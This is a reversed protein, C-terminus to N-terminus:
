IHLTEAMRKALALASVSAENRMVEEGESIAGTSILFRGVKALLGSFRLLTQLDMLQWDVSVFLQRIHPVYANYIGQVSIETFDDRRVVAELAQVISSGLRIKKENSLSNYIAERISQKITLMKRIPGNVDGFITWAVTASDEKVLDTIVLHINYSTSTTFPGFKLNYYQHILFFVPIGGPHLLSCVEIIKTAIIYKSVFISSSDHVSQLLNHERTHKTVRPHGGVDLINRLPKRPAYKSGRTKTM